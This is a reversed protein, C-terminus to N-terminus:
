ASLAAKVATQVLEKQADAFYKVAVIAAVTSLTLAISGKGLSTLEFRTSAKVMPAAAEQAIAEAARLENKAAHKAQTAGRAATVKPDEAM